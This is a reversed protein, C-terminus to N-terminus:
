QQRIAKGCLWRRFQSTMDRTSSNQTRNVDTRTRHQWGDQSVQKGADRNYKVRFGNPNQKLVPFLLCHIGRIYACHLHKLWSIIHWSFTIEPESEYMGMGRQTCFCPWRIYTAVRKAIWKRTWYLMNWWPSYDECCISNNRKRFCM